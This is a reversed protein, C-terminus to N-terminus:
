NTSTMLTRMLKYKGAITTNSLQIKLNPGSTMAPSYNELYFGTILSTSYTSASDEKM